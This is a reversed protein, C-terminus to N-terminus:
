ALRDQCGRMTRLTEGTLQGLYVSYPDRETPQQAPESVLPPLRADDVAALRDKDPM